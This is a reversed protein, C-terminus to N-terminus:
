ISMEKKDCETEASQCIVAKTGQECKKLAKAKAEIRSMGKAFYSGNFKTNVLCSHVVTTSASHNGSHKIMSFKEHLAALESELNSVRKQLKNNRKQLQKIDDKMIPHTNENNHAFAGHNMLMSIVLLTAHRKM